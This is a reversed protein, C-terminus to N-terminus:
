CIHTMLTHKTSCTDTKDQQQNLYKHYLIHNCCVCMCPSRKGICICVSTEVKCSDNFLESLWYNTYNVVVVHIRYSIMLWVSCHHILNYKCTKNCLADSDSEYFPTTIYAGTFVGWYIYACSTYQSIFIDPSESNKEDFMHPSIFWLTHLVLICLWNPPCWYKWINLRVNKM